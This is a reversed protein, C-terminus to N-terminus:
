NKLPHDHGDMASFSNIRALLRVMLDKVHRSGNMASLNDNMVFFPAALSQLTVKAMFFEEHVIAKSNQTFHSTTYSTGVGRSVPVIYRL